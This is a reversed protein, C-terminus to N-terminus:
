AKIKQERRLARFFFDAISTHARVCYIRRCCRLARLVASMNLSCALPRSVLAFFARKGDVASKEGSQYGGSEGMGDTKYGLNSTLLINRSPKPQPRSVWLSMKSREAARGASCM